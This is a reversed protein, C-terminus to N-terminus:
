LTNDQILTVVFILILPMIFLIIVGYILTQAVAIGQSGVDM